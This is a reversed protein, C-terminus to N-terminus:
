SLGMSATRRVFRQLIIVFGLLILSPLALVEARLEKQKFTTVVRRPNPVPPPATASLSPAAFSQDEGMEDDSSLGLGLDDDM